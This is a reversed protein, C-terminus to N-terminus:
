VLKTNEKGENGRVLDPLKDLPNDPNKGLSAMWPIVEGKVENGGFIRGKAMRRCACHQPDIQWSSSILCCAVLLALATSCSFSPM